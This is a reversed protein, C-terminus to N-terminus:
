VAEARPPGPDLADTLIARAAAADSIRRENAYASLRDRVDQSLRVTVVGANGSQRTFGLRFLRLREPDFVGNAARTELEALFAEPDRVSRALLTLVAPPVRGERLFRTALALHDSLLPDSM